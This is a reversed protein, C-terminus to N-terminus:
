ASHCSPRRARATCWCLWIMVACWRQVHHPIYRSVNFDKSCYILPYFFYNSQDSEIEKLKPMGFEQKNTVMQYAYDLFYVIEM